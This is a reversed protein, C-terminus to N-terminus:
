GEDDGKAMAALAAFSRMAEEPDAGAAVGFIGAPPAPAKPAGPLDLSDPDDGARITFGGGGGARLAGFDLTEHPSPIKRWGETVFVQATGCGPWHKGTHGVMVVPVGDYVIDGDGVEIEGTVFHPCCANGLDVKPIRYPAGVTAIRRGQYSPGFHLPVAIHGIGGESVVQAGEFAVYVNRRALWELLLGIEEEFMGKLDIM